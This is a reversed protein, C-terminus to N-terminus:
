YKDTIFLTSDRTVVFTTDNTQTNIKMEKKEIIDTHWSFKESTINRYLFGRGFSGYYTIFFLPIISIALLISSSKNNNEGLKSGSIFTLTYFVIISLYFLITLM